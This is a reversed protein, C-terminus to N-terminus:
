PNQIAIGVTDTSNGITVVLPVQDGTAVGAPITLNLQYEGAEGPVLGSFSPTVAIGGITVTPMQLTHYLTSGNAPAVQGTPLNPTTAGGGTWYVVISDGPKAPQGCAAAPSLGTCPSLNYSATISAPAVLWNTGAVQIAGNNAYTSNPVRFIGVDAPGLAITFTSSTGSGTQVTVSATGTSALESPLQINILNASPVLAYIPVATGNLLVQVGEVTTTPYTAPSSTTNGANMAYITVISNPAAAHSTTEQTGTASNEIASISPLAAGIYLSRALSSVGGISLVTPQAGAALGNPVTFVVDYFEPDDGDQQVADVTAPQGGVTVTPMGVPTAGLGTALGGVQSGPQAPTTASIGPPQDNLLTGYCQCTPFFYASNVQGWGPAYAVLTMPFPASTQGNYTVTMTTPGASINSPLVAFVEGSGNQNIQAPQGGVLITSQSGFAGLDSGIIVVALGPCLNGSTNAYNLVSTVVPQAHALFSAFFFVGAYLTRM